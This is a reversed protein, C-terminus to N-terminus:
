AHRGEEMFDQCFNDWPGHERMGGRSNCPSPVHRHCIACPRIGKAQFGAKNLLRQRADRRSQLERIQKDIKALAETHVEVLKVGERRYMEDEPSLTM